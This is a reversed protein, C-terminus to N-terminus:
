ALSYDLKIDPSLCSIKQSRLSENSRRLVELVLFIRVKTTDILVGKTNYTGLETM